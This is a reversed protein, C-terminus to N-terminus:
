RRKKLDSHAPVPTETTDEIHSNVDDEDDSRTDEAGKGSIVRWAVRCIMGFWIIQIFQLFILLIVFGMLAEYTVFHGHEPAWDLTMLKPADSYTSKIVYIFLVHRTIFWSVLFWTFTADCLTPITLYRFMKALPLFIDCYDMLVMILCGVRHLNYIYSLVMLAITIVHHFMMQYHDKRRAEANLILVQHIYFATQILYYCKLPEALPIHPYDLWLKSPVFPSTPLNCHIYLGFSWQLTYYIMSWGQEAFRLVSRRTAREERRRKRAADSKEVTSVHGNGNSVGELSGSSVEKASQFSTRRTLFWHAFPEMIFVRAVDRLIAMVAIATVVFCGDLLGTSYYYSTAFSDPEAPPNTPYSLSFFPVLFTPLWEPSREINM